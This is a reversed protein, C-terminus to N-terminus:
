LTVKFAENGVVVVYAGSGLGGLTITPAGSANVLLTAGSMTFITVKAKSPNEIHLAGDAAYVNAEVLKLIAETDVTNKVTVYDSYESSKIKPNSYQNEPNKGRVAVVRVHIPTALKASPGEIKVEHELENVFQKLYCPDRFVEGKKYNQTIKLNDVYLNDYGKVAFIGVKSRKTGKTFPIEYTTWRPSVKEPYVLEVQKFTGLEEDYTFLAIAAETQRSDIVNANSDKMEGIAGWLDVKVKFKGGDKSLDLEESQLSVIAKANFYHWGDLCIVGKYAAYNYGLWGAQVTEVARGMLSFVKADPDPNEPTFESLEGKPNKVNSFDENTVVFEGDREATRDYYAWVNYATASPVSNWSAKFVGDVATGQIPNVVPAVLDYIEAYPAVISKKDGKTAALTYFYVEGSTLGSLTHSTTNGGAIKKEKIVYEKRTPEPMGPRPAAEGTPVLHYVSMLYGDAENVKNWRIDVSTGKYNLYNKLTPMSVFPKVTSIEIEDILIAYDENQARKVINVITTNGANQFLFYYDKWETSINEVHVAEGIRWTPSMNFTEAAEVTLMAGEGEALARSARAKIKVFFNGQEKSLDILHTNIKAEKAGMYLKGGASYVNGAGWIEGNEAYEKKMNFWVPYESIPKENGEVYIKTTMDPKEETGTTLKSFTERVVTVKEGYTEPIESAPLRM